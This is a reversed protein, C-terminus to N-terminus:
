ETDSSLAAEEPVREEEDETEAPPEWEKVVISPIKVGISGSPVAAAVNVAVEPDEM